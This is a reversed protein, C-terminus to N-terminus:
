WHSLIGIKRSWGATSLMHLSLACKYARTSSLNAFQSRFENWRPQWNIGHHCTFLQRWGRPRAVFSSDLCGGKYWLTILYVRGNRISARGGEASKCEFFRCRWGDDWYNQHQVEANQSRWGLKCPRLSSSGANRECKQLLVWLEKYLHPLSLLTQISKWLWVQASSIIQRNVWLFLLTLVHVIRRTCWHALGKLTLALLNRM